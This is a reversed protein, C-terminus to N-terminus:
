SRRQLLFEFLGKFHSGIIRFNGQFILKSINMLEKLAVFILCSLKQWPSTHRWILTIYNRAKHREYAEVPGRGIKGGKHYIVAEPVYICCHGARRARLCLDVEEWGYPTFAGDLGGLARFVEARVLFGFGGCADVPGAEDYQGLDTEGSGRDYVAGTTLNAVIGASMITSSPYATYAKGCAIAAGPDASLARSLHGLFGPDVTTDNDLFLLYDASLHAQVFAEGRNRGLPAGLNTENRLLHYHPFAEAAAEASGDGSANDVVVVQYPEYDLAGVSALCALLEEKKNFNLVIVAVGPRIETM